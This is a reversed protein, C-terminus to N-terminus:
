TSASYFWAVKKLLVVYVCRDTLPEFGIVPEQQKRSCSVNSENSLVPQELFPNSSSKVISSFYVTM